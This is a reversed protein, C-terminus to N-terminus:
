GPSCGAAASRRASPNKRSSNGSACSSTRHAVHLVREGDVDLVPELDEVHGVVDIAGVPVGVLQAADVRRPPQELQEVPASRLRREEAEAPDGLAHGLHDALDGRGAVLDAAVAVVVADQRVEALLAEAVVELARRDDELLQGARPRRREAGARPRDAALRRPRDVLQHAAADREVARDLRHAREVVAHRGRRRRRVPDGDAVALLLALQQLERRQRPVHEALVQRDAAAAVEPQERQRQQPAAQPLLLPEAHRTAQVQVRPLDVRVLGPLPEAAQAAEAV